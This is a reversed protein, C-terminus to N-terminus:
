RRTCIIDLVNNIHAINIRWQSPAISVTTTATTLYLEVGQSKSHTLYSNSVIM